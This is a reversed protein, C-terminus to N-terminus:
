LGFERGNVTSAAKQAGEAIWLRVAELSGDIAGALPSAEGDDFEGLVWDVQDEGPPPEGVGVRLRALQDTQMAGIISAMGNHGGASGKSRIRIRGLPLHIDDYVVLIDAPDVELSRAAARLSKGSLNMFTMPKLLALQGWESEWPGWLLGHYRSRFRGARLKEVLADVVMWGINHRTQAYRLGPNGLGAILKM